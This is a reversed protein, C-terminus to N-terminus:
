MKRKVGRWIAPVLGILLLVFSGNVFVWKFFTFFPALVDVLPTSLPYRAMVLSTSINELYDLLAGLVPALNALQWRSEVPFARAMGWSISTALFFTYVLPWVVDFTWRARIYAVRGEPGYSEAMTYLDNPSYFFSMDPSAAQNSAEDAKKAQAPLILATFFIFIVLALLTLLGTSAKRLWISIQTLVAGM